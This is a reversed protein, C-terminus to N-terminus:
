EEEGDRERRDYVGDLQVREGNSPDYPFDELPMNPDLIIMGGEENVGDAFMSIM